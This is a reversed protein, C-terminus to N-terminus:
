NKFEHWFYGAKFMAVAGAVSMLVTRFTENIWGIMELATVGFITAVLIVLTVAMLVIAKTKRRVVVERYTEAANQQVEEVNVSREKIKKNIAEFEQSENISM